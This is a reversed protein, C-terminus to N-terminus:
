KDRAGGAEGEAVCHERFDECEADTSKRENLSRKRNRRASVDNGVRLHSSQDAEV